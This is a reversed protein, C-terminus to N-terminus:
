RNRFTENVFILWDSPKPITVPPKKKRHQSIGAKGPFRFRHMCGRCVTSTKVVAARSHMMEEPGDATQATLKLLSERHFRRNEMPNGQPKFGEPLKVIVM